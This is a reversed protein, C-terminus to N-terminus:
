IFHNWQKIWLVRLATLSCIGRKSSAYAYQSVTFDMNKRWRVINRLIIGDDGAVVATSSNIVAASYLAQKTNRYEVIGVSAGNDQSAVCKGGLGVAISFSESGSVAMLTKDDNANLETWTEGFDKTQIRIGNAGSVTAVTRPTSSRGSSVKQFPAYVLPANWTVGGDTTTFLANGDGVATGIFESVFALANLDRADPAVRKIWSIKGIDSTEIFGKKGSIAFSQTSLAAVSLLFNGTGSPVLSWKSGGNTTSLITGNDGVILGNVGSFVVSSLTCSIFSSSIDEWSDGGNSTKLITGQAGVITGNNQDAFSVSILDNTTGSSQTKWTIGGDTSHFITGARGVITGRQDDFFSICQLDQTQKLSAKFWSSGGNTSTIFAGKDGVIFGRSSGVFCISNFVDTIGCVFSEASWQKGGDLSRVITGSDGVAFVTKSNAYAIGNLYSNHLSRQPQATTAAAAYCLLLGAAAIRTLFFRNTNTM